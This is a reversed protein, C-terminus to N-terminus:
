SKIKKKYGPKTEHEIDVDESRVKESVKRHETRPKKSLRVEEKVVTRKQVDVEEERLPISVEEETFAKDTDYDRAEDPPVREVVLEEKSVPVTINKLETHVVKRLRVNHTRETKEVDLEEERLPMRVEQPHNRVGEAYNAREIEDWGEYEERRWPDLENSHTNIVIQDGIVDVVDDYRVTFDKPFFWGKEITMSDADAHVLKGLKEREQSYVVMGEELRHFRKLFDHKDMKTNEGKKKLNM